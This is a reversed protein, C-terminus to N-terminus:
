YKCQLLLYKFRVGAAAPNQASLTIIKAYKLPPTFGCFKKLKRLIIGESM